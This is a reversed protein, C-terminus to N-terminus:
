RGDSTTSREQTIELRKKSNDTISSHLRNKAAFRANAFLLLKLSEKEGASQETHGDGTTNVSKKCRERGEPFAVANSGCTGCRGHRDLEGVISCDLCFFEESMPVDQMERMLLEEGHMFAIREKTALM